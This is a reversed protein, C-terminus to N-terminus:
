PLVLAPERTGLFWRDLLVHRAFWPMALLRGVLNAGLESGRSLFPPIRPAVFRELLQAEYPELQERTYRGHAGAIAAAALLGSEVAPRIGEGSQPSALGAADGVLLVGADVVRRRPQGSLLYAHGHWPWSLSAPIRGTVKLSAVFAASASPMSRGDLRGFGVNLYQQKRFCWGYGQLDPCFYLEPREPAVSLARADAPGVPFEGEQAVVLPAGAPTPSLQGAVPCRHGGAGVLMPTRVVDNVIWADGDRRITQVHTGLMTRAGSRRLLYHDFECRRVGYSVPRDYVTEVARSGDILGTRFGSIPQLTHHQRYEDLDLRLDAVVPPTIWGACVKDRPFVAADLIMADLGAQRLKWACTSGAPGGGVVLVDCSDMAM